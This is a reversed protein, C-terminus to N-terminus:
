RWFQLPILTHQLLDGLKNYNNLDTMCFKYMLWGDAEWKWLQKTTEEKECQRSMKFEKLCKHKEMPTQTLSISLM